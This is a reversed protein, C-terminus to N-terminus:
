NLIKNMAKGLADTSKNVKSFTCTKKKNETNQLLLEVPYKLVTQFLKLSDLTKTSLYTWNSNKIFRTNIKLM